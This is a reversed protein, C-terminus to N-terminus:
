RYISLERVSRAFVAPFRAVDIANALCTALIHRHRLPPNEAVYVADDILLDVAHRV